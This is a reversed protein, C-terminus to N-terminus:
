LFKHSWGHTGVSYGLRSVEQVDRSSFYDPETNMWGMTVFFRAPCAMKQLVPVGYRLQTIHGDDFTIEFPLKDPHAAMAALHASLLEATVAYWYTDQEPTIQHYNFIVQDRKGRWCDDRRKAEPPSGRNNELPRTGQPVLHFCRLSRCGDFSCLGPDALVSAQNEVEGAGM